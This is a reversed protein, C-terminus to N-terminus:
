GSQYLAPGSVVHPNIMSLNFPTLFPDSDTVAIFMTGNIAPDGQYTELDPQFTHGHSGNAGLLPTYTVNLQSVWAVFKADGASSSTVYSNNPGVAKGPMEWQLDVRRGPFSLPSYDKPTVSAGSAGNKSNPNQKNSAKAVNVGADLTETGNKLGVTPQNLIWLGPFNEWVLRTQGAPCSSIYPAM